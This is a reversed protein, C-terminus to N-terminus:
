VYPWMMESLDLCADPVGATSEFVSRFNMKRLLEVYRIAHFNGVYIISNKKDPGKLLRTMLYYDMLFISVDSFNLTLNKLQTIIDDDVDEDEDEDEDENEGEYDGVLRVCLLDLDRLFTAQEETEKIEKQFESYYSAMVEKEESVKMKRIQSNIKLSTIANEIDQSVTLGGQIRMLRHLKRCWTKLTVKMNKKSPNVTSALYGDSTVHIWYVCRYIEVNNFKSRRVDTSHFRVHGAYPCIEGGDVPGNYLCGKAELDMYLELMFCVPEYENHLARTGLRREEHDIGKMDIPFEGYLDVFVRKNKELLGVVFDFANIANKRSGCVNLKNHAEGLIIINHRENSLVSVSILGSVWRRRTYIDAYLKEDPLLTRNMVYEYIELVTGFSVHLYESETGLEDVILLDFENTVDEGVTIDQNLVDTIQKGESDDCDFLYFTYPVPDSLTTHIQHVLPNDKQPTKVIICPFKLLCESSDHPNQLQDIFRLVTEFLVLGEEM